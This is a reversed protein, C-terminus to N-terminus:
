LRRSSSLREVFSLVLSYINDVVYGMNLFVMLIHQQDMAMGASDVSHVKDTTGRM